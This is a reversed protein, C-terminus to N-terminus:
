FVVQLVNAQLRYELSIYMTIFAVFNFYHKAMKMVQSAELLPQQMVKDQLQLFKMRDQHLLDVETELNQHMNIYKIIM